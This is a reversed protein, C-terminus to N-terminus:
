DLPGLLPSYRLHHQVKFMEQKCARDCAGPPSGSPRKAILLHSPSRGMLLMFEGPRIVQSLLGSQGSLRCTM